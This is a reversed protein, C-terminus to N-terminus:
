DTHVIKTLRTVAAFPKERVRMDSHNMRMRLETLSVARFLFEVIFLSNFQVSVAVQVAELLGGLVLIKSLLLLTSSSLSDYTSM